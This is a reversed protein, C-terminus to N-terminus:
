LQFYLIFTIEMLFTGSVKCQWDKILSSPDLLAVLLPFFISGVTSLLSLLDAATMATLPLGCGTMFLVRKQKALIILRWLVFVNLAIGSLSLFIYCVAVYGASM